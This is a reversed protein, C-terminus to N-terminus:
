VNGIGPLHWHRFRRAIEPINESGYPTRSRLHYEPANRNSTRSVQRKLNRRHAHRCRSGCLDFKGRVEARTPRPNIRMSDLMQTAIIVPKKALRCKEILQKQVVPVKEPPLEIGLDGRAVLIGDSAAIIEDMNEVAEPKEIKAIILPEHQPKYQRIVAKLHAIDSAYRVFSLAVFDVKFEIGWCLDQKDKASLIPLTGKYYPINIGKRSELFGGNIVKVWLDTKDKRIVQTYILGDDMYLADGVEVSKAIEHSPIPLIKQKEDASEHTSLKWIDDSALKFPSPLDGIRLKPGQLDLMVGIPSAYTQEMNRICTMQRTRTETTGHSCNIRIISMGCQALTHLTSPSDISPGITCIIKTRNNKM